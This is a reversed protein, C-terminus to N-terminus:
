ITYISCIYLIDSCRADRVAKVGNIMVLKDGFRDLPIIPAITPRDRDEALISPHTAVHFRNM